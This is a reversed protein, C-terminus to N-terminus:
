CLKEGGLFESSEGCFITSLGVIAQHSERSRIIEPM